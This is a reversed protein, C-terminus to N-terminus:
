AAAERKLIWRDMRNIVLAGFFLFAASSLASGFAFIFQEVDMGPMTGSYHDQAMTQMSRSMVTFQGVMSAFFTLIAAWFLIVPGARMAWNFFRGMM